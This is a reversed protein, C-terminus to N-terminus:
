HSCAEKACFHILITNLAMNCVYHLATNSCTYSSFLHHSRHLDESMPCFQFYSVHLSLSTRFSSLYSRCFSFACSLFLTVSVFTSLFFFLCSPNPSTGHPTLKWKIPDRAVNRQKPIALSLSKKEHQTITAVWLLWQPTPRAREDGDRTIVKGFVCQKEEAARPCILRRDSTQNLMWSFLVNEM